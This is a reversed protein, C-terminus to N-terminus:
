ALFPRCRYKLWLYPVPYTSADVHSTAGGGGRNVVGGVRGEEAEGVIKRFWFKHLQMTSAEGVNSGCLVTRNMM